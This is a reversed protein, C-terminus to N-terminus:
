ATKKEELKEVQERLDAPMIGKLFSTAAETNTALEMLLEDFALSNEFKARTKIFSEGDEGREGVSMLILEKFEKMIETANKAEVLNRWKKEMGGEIALNMDVLDSKTLHFYYTKTVKKGDLNIFSIEKKIM